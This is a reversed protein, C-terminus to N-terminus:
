IATGAIAARQHQQAADAVPEHDLGLVRTVARGRIAAVLTPGHAFREGRRHEPRGRDDRGIRGAPRQDVQGPEENPIRQADACAQLLAPLPREPEVRLATEDVAFLERKRVVDLELRRQRKGAVLRATFHALGGRVATRDAQHQVVREHPQGIGTVRHAFPIRARRRDVHLVVVEALREIARQHPPKRTAVSQLLGVRRRRRARDFLGDHEVDIGARRLRDTRRQDVAGRPPGLRKGGRPELVTVADLQQGLARVREVNAVVDHLPHVALRAAPRVATADGVGAGALHQLSVHNEATLPHALVPHDELPERAAVADVGLRDRQRADALEGGVLDAVREAERVVHGRAGVAAGRDHIVRRRQDGHVVVAAEIERAGVGGAHARGTLAACGSPLSHSM